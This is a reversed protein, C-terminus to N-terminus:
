QEATDTLGNGIAMGVLALGVEDHLLEVLLSQLHAHLKSPLSLQYKLFKKHM